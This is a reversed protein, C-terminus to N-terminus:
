FTEAEDLESTSFRCLLADVRHLSGEYQRALYSKAISSLFTLRSITAALRGWYSLEALRLLGIIGLAPNLLSRLAVVVTTRICTALYHTASHRRRGREVVVSVRNWSTGHPYWVIALAADRVRRTAKSSGRNMLLGHITSVRRRMLISHVPHRRNVSLVLPPHAHGWAVYAKTLISARWSLIGSIALRWGMDTRHAAPRSRMLRAHRWTLNARRRVSSLAWSTHHGSLEWRHHVIVHALRQLWVVLSM